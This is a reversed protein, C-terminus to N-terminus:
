NPRKVSADEELANFFGEFDMNSARRALYQRMGDIEAETMTSLDGDAVRTLTIVYREGNAGQASGVRKNGDVPRPLNFAATLVEAPIGAQNRRALEHTQWTLGADEAVEVVSEGAEVGALAAAYASEVELRARERAIQDRIDDAVEEYPISQPEHRATVRAVVARNDLYEVAPSNYGQELVEDTFVSQRLTENGFIGSGSSRTIGEVTGVELGLQEAIGDLSDPQEFALNDLDRVRDVFLTRAQERRMREEIQGRLEEFPPFESTVIKNLQILHVGFETTVPESLQGPELAWLAEEFEPAFLGKGVPGLEGGAAASGPDESYEKALEGFDEGAEIRQKLENALAIAQDTTREDNVAILIHRSDRQEDLVAEAKDAEYAHKLDEETVEISPDHMLADLTLEVYALDVSEETMYDLLNEEYRLRVDEDTVAATDLFVEETFALYAIDRRQGLLRAHRRLEWETNFATEAIGNRLQDIGIMEGTLNLFETPSYGLMSVVRRYASEQFQGDIQFNPNEVIIQHVQKDSAGMGLDDAAQTLLMRNILQNVVSNQLLVPDIMDPNFNEGYQAALRRRERDTERQLINRTIDKGNVSAITPDRTLFLNFAGFGFIALVFIILGVLVKFALSQTQDRLKQLM